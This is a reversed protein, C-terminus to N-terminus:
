DRSRDFGINERNPFRFPNSEMVWEPGENLWYRNLRLENKKLKTVYFNAFACRSVEQDPETVLGSVHISKDHEFIEYFYESESDGAFVDYVSIILRGDAKFTWEVFGETQVGEPHQLVWSGVVNGITVQEDDDKCGTMVITGIFVLLTLFLKKM